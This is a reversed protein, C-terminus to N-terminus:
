ATAGILERTSTPVGSFSILSSLTFAYSNEHYKAFIIAEEEVTGAAQCDMPILTMYHRNSFGLCGANACVAASVGTVIVTTQTPLIHERQLVEDLETRAFPDHSRKKVVIESPLPTLEKVINTEPTGEVLFPERGFVTVELADPSRVSQIFIVKVGAERAKALLVANGEIAAHSRSSPDSCFREQMDVIVLAANQPDLTFERPV